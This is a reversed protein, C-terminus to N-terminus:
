RGMGRMPPAPSAPIQARIHFSARVAGARQFVLTIDQVGGEVLPEKLQTLMLHLGGPRFVVQGHAPIVIPGVSRMTSMGAMNETAHIGVSAACACRASILTDPLAGSNAIVMYAASNPANGFSTRVMRSSVTIDGKKVQHPDAGAGGAALVMAAFALLFLAASPRTAMM